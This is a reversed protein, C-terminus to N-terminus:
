DVGEKNVQERNLECGHECDHERGFISCTSSWTSGTNATGGTGTRSVGVHALMPFYQEMYELTPNDKILTNFADWFHKVNSTALFDSWLKNAAMTADFITASAGSGAVVPTIQTPFKPPFDSTFNPKM